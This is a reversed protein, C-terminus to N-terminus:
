RGEEQYTLVYVQGALTAYAIRNDVPSCDPFMEMEDDTATLYGSRIGDPSVFVLDSSIVRHGDDRDDMGVIWRGDHTWSPANCRGLLALLNGELDSVLAGREMQVAAIRTREPSLTPWIYRGTGLPDLLRENGSVLLAIKTQDIGLLTVAGAGPGAAKEVSPQERYVLREGSFAPPSLKRDEAVVRGEPEDLRRVVLEQSRDKGAGATRRYALLTGDGSLSFGYGSGPDDTIQRATATALDFEWIGRYEPTTVYIRSADPSFRPQSWQRGPDLPLRELAVVTLQATAAVTSGLVALCLMLRRM